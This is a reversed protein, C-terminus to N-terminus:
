FALLVYRNKVRQKFLEDKLYFQLEFPLEEEIEFCIGGESIEIGKAKLIDFDGIAEIDANLDVRPLRNKFEKNKNSLSALKQQLSLIKNQLESIEDSEKTNKKIM